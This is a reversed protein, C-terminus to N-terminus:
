LEHKMRSQLTLELSRTKAQLVGLLATIYESIRHDEFSKSSLEFSEWDDSGERAMILSILARKKDGAESAQELSDQDVGYAEAHKILALVNMEELKSRRSSAADDESPRLVVLKSFHRYNSAHQEYAPILKKLEAYLDGTFFTAIYSMGKTKEAYLAEVLDEVRLKSYARPVPDNRFIYNTATAMTKVFKPSADLFTAQGPPRLKTFVMPSAFAVLRANELLQKVARSYGNTEELLRAMAYLANAHAAGMSHGTIVLDLRKGDRECASAVEELRALLDSRFWLRRNAIEQHFTTHIGVGHQLYDIHNYQINADSLLDVVNVTGRFVIYLTRFADLDQSAPFGVLVTALFSNLGSAPDDALTRLVISETAWQTLFALEPPHLCEKASVEYIWSSLSAAELDQLELASVKLHPLAIQRNKGWLKISHDGNGNSGSALKSGDPSWSVSNGTGRQISTLTQMLNGTQSDWLKITGFLDSSALKGGDPSWSVSTVGDGHGKLTQLLSGTQSDWLKITSDFSGSALKGGDPSWSVAHGWSSGMESAVMQLWSGMGWDDNGNLTQLLNGTQSDWLKIKNDLSGSALKGGAPSWSVSIAGLDHDKLTQVLDGTRTDWLMIAKKSCSALKDGVPSWSVSTVEGDHGELTQLLNGTQSDWLKITYDSSGSALKGGDPSWSAANVMDDHGELTQLLNGTQSDWLKITDDSTGSALKGGDPSWSVSRVLVM